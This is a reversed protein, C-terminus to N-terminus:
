ESMWFCFAAELRHEEIEDVVRSRDLDDFEAHVREATRFYVVRNNTTAVGDM